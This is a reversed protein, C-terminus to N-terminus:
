NKALFPIGITHLIDKTSCDTVEPITPLQFGCCHSKKYGSVKPTGPFVGMYLIHLREYLYGTSDFVIQSYPWLTQLIKEEVAMLLRNNYKDLDTDETEFMGQDGKKSEFSKWDETGNSYEIQWNINGFMCRKNVAPPMGGKTTISRFIFLNDLPPLYTYIKKILDPLEADKCLTHVLLQLYLCDCNMAVEEFFSSPDMFGNVSISDVDITSNNLYSPIRFRIKVTPVFNSQVMALATGMNEDIKVSM